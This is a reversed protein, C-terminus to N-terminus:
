PAAPNDGPVSAAVQKAVEGGLDRRNDDYRELVRVDRHRSFRQVARVNGGTLDLAETIAAHRLGHPWVKLGIKRGLERVMGYLGIATLRGKGPHTRNMSCFLPGPAVGRVGIWAELAKKTEPPLTLKMKSTRGKGLVAVTGAERDLDELDLNLVEARRLGLDFLCRLIARDRMSKPDKRKALSDLMDRFGARGPGRTDRYPDAKVSQVEITWSVVGLTRGLKVLSRLATLRRNITNAALERDMLHAKYDLALANAEGPGRALLLRAAQELSPAQIFAQFDELDQRYATITEAKRGNLFARLLRAAASDPDLGGKRSLPVPLYDSM